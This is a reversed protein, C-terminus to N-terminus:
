ASSAFNKHPFRVFAEFLTALSQLTPEDHPQLAQKIDAVGAAIRHIEKEINQLTRLRRSHLQQGCMM